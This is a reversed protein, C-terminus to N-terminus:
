RGLACYLRDISGSVSNNGGAGLLMSPAGLCGSGAFPVLCVCISSVRGTATGEFPLRGPCRLRTPKDCDAQNQQCLRRKAFSAALGLEDHGPVSPPGSTCRCAAGASYKLRKSCCRMVLPAAYPRGVTFSLRLSPGAPLLSFVATTRQAYAIPRAKSKLEGGAAISARRRPDTSPRM